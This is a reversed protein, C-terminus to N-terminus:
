SRLTKSDLGSDPERSIQYDAEEGGTEVVGGWVLKCM